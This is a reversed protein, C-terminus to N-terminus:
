GTVSLEETSQTKFLLVNIIGEAEEEQDGEAM